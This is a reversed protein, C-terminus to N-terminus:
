APVEKALLPITIDLTNGRLTAEAREQGINTPMPIVKSNAPSRDLRIHLEITAGDPIFLVHIEHPEDVGRLEATVTVVAARQVIEYSLIEAPPRSSHRTLPTGGRPPERQPRLLRQAHRPV